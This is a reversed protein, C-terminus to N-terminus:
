EKLINTIKEDRIDSKDPYTIYFKMISKKTIGIEPLIKQKLILLFEEELLKKCIKGYQTDLFKINISLLEVNNGNLIFKVDKVVGCAKNLSTEIRQTSEENSDIIEIYHTGFTHSEINVTFEIKKGENLLTSLKIERKYQPWVKFKSLFSEYQELTNNDLNKVDFYKEM